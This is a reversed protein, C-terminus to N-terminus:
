RSLGCAVGGAIGLGSGLLLGTLYHELSNGVAAFWHGGIVERWLAAPIESPPPLLTESVIGLAPVAQWLGLFAALGLLGLAAGRLGAANPLRAPTPLRATRTPPASTSAPM